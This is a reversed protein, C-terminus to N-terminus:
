EGTEILGAARLSALLANLQDVVTEEDADEVAPGPTFGEGGPGGEDAGKFVAIGYEKGDFVTTPGRPQFGDAIAENVAANFRDLGFVRIYKYEEIAM